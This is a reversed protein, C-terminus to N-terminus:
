RPLRELAAKAERTQLAQPTGEALSELLRRAEPTRTHELVEVARLIQLRKPSPPDNELRELLQSARRRMELSSPKAVARRLAPEALDELKELSQDARQRVKFDDSDLDAIWRAIQKDDAPAAPRLRQRLLPVAQKNAAVLAWVAGFAKGANADALDAWLSDLEKPSFTAEKLRDDQLRGTVDWILGTTDWSASALRRGDLSFAAGSLFGLHGTFRARVQGTALEVLLIAEPIEPVFTSNGDVVINRGDPSFTCWNGSVGELRRVEKGSEMDCVRLGNGAGGNHPTAAYWRGDPAIARVWDEQVRRRREKGSAVDWFRVTNDLSVSTLTKGDPSISLCYIGKEHGKFQQLEKGTATEWLRITKGFGASALTKGDPSFVVSPTLGPNATVMDGKIRRLERGTAVDWLSLVGDWELLTLTQGDPTMALVAHPLNQTKLRHRVQQTAADWIIAGGNGLTVLSKGDPTFRAALLAGRNPGARSLPLEEGTAPDHLSVVGNDGGVAVTKGDPSFITGYGNNNKCTCRKEGTAV